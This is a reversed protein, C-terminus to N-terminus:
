EPFADSRLPDCAAKVHDFGPMPFPWTNRDFDWAWIPMASIIGGNEGTCSDRTGVFPDDRIPCQCRLPRDPDPPDILETCPAADCIAWYDDGSYGDEDPDCARPQYLSCWGRYSFTSVWPYRVGDVEYLGDAIATCVPAEDVDCPHRNTCRAETMRKVLPDHIESTAVMHTENVRWCDCEARDGSVQCDTSFSCLAHWGTCVVVFQPVVASHGAGNDPKEGAGTVPTAGLAIAAWAVYTIVAFRSRMDM